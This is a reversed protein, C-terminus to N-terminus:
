TSCITHWIGFGTTGCARKKNFGNQRLSIISMYKYHKYKLIVSALTPREGGRRTSLDVYQMNLSALDATGLVGLTQWAM